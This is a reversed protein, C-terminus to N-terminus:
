SCLLFCPQKKIAQKHPMLLDVHNLYGMFWSWLSQVKPLLYNLQNLLKKPASSRPGFILALPRISWVGKDFSRRLMKQLMTHSSWWPFFSPRFKLVDIRFAKILTIFAKGFNCDDLFWDVSKFLMDVSQNRYSLFKLSVKMINKSSNCLQTFFIICLKWRM